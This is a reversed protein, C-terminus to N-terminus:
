NILIFNSKVSTEIYIEKLGPIRYKNGSYNEDSLDSLCPINM